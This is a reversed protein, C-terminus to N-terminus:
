RLLVQQFSKDACTRLRPKQPCNSFVAESVALGGGQGAPAPAEKAAAVAVQAPGYGQM